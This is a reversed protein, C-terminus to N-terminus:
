LSPTELYYLLINRGHIPLAMKQIRSDKELLWDIYEEYTAVGKGSLTRRHGNESAFVCCPIIAFPKIPNCALCSDVIADTAQDPHFGLVLDTENWLSLFSLSALFENGFYEPIHQIKGDISRTGLQKFQSKIPRLGDSRPDVVTCQVQLNQDLSDAYLQISLMGRGGAVDLVNCKENDKVFTKLIWNSFIKSKQNKSFLKSDPANDNASLYSQLSAAKRRDRREKVYKERIVVLDAKPPHTFACNPSPCVNGNVVYKCVGLSNLKPVEKRAPFPIIRPTANKTVCVVISSTVKPNSSSNNNQIHLDLCKFFCGLQLHLRVEEPKKYLIQYLEDNLLAHIFISNRSTKKLFVCEFVSEFSTMFKRAVVPETKWQM